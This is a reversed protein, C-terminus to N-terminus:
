NEYWIASSSRPGDRKIDTQFTTACTDNIINILANFINRRAMYEDTLNLVDSDYVQEVNAKDVDKRFLIM